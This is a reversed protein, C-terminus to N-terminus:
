VEYHHAVLKQIFSAVMNIDQLTQVEPHTKNENHSDHSGWSSLNFM